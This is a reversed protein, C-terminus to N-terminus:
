REEFDIVPHDGSSLRPQMYLKVAALHAFFEDESIGPAKTMVLGQGSGVSMSRVYDFYFKINPYYKFVEPFKLALYEFLDQRTARGKAKVMDLRGGVFIFAKREPLLKKYIERMLAPRNSSYLYGGNIDMAGGLSNDAIEPLVNQVYDVRTSFNRAVEGEKLYNLLKSVFPILVLNLQEKTIGQQFPSGNLEHFWGGRILEKPFEGMEKAHVSYLENLVAISPGTKGLSGQLLFSPIYAGQNKFLEAIAGPEIFKLLPGYYDQPNVDLVKIGNKALALGYLSYGGGSDLVLSGRPIADTVKSFDGNFYRNIDSFTRDNILRYNELPISGNKNEFEKLTDVMATPCFHAPVEGGISHASILLVLAFSLLSVNRTM